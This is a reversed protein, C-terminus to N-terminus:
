FVETLHFVHTGCLESHVVTVLPIDNDLYSWLRFSHTLSQIEDYTLDKDVILTVVNILPNVSGTHIITWPVDAILTLRGELLSRQEIEFSAEMSSQQDPTIHPIDPDILHLHIHHTPHATSHIM